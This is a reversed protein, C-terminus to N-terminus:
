PELQKDAVIRGDLFEIMRRARSAVEREHTVMLITVGLQHNLDALLAAGREAPDQPRYEM